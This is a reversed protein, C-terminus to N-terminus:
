TLLLTFAASCIATWSHRVSSCTQVASALARSACATKRAGRCDAPPLVREYNRRQLRSGCRSAAAPEIPLERRILDYIYPPTTHHDSEPFSPSDSTSLSRPAAAPLAASTPCPARRCPGDRRERARRRLPAASRRQPLRQQRAPRGFDAHGIPLVHGALPHGM